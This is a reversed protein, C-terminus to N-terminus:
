EEGEAISWERRRALLDYDGYEDVFQPRPQSLYPTDPDDFAAIWQKLGDGVKRMIDGAEDGAAGTENDKESEKRLVTRLYCFEAVKRPGLAAFGGGAVILATLPLQVRFLQMQKDSPISRSKYDFIAADGGHTLDIRDAYASIKFPQHGDELTLEGKGEIVAPAGLLLRRAHFDAFWSLTDAVAPAFFAAEAPGYGYGPAFQAFIEDLAGGERAYTEFVKHFLSGLHRPGFPENLPDLKKLDLIYQAYIAYPDRLWKEIRTVFLGRPRLAFTPKPKPAAVPKAGDEPADLAKAWAALTGTEDLAGLAGAGELINRLRVIWRSPKAPAGGTRAARTLIVRPGAALQAFDHAALGVRREPSPLGLKQRMPRSLFPDAEAEGPWVGENLGGLIVLDASQLRAELPGLISLRSHAPARRRVAASAIMQTFAAAYDTVAIAGVSGASAKLDALLLAGAEGDEGRWLREAGAEDAAAALLEAAALHADLRASFPAEPTRPFLRAAADLAAAVPAAEGARRHSAIKAALGAAGVGDAPPALGRAAENFAAVARRRGRMDLGLGALPHQVLALAAAPDNPAALWAAALRLYTGCPSNAFPIGASDDVAVQWRRMKAAVRRSLNRDPTVLMATTGPTDLTERLKLAIASAESEEDAAEILSLGATSRKLGPDAASARAVLERWDDTAEAPRLALSVLARRPARDGGPFARVDNPQLGLRDLLAKLGAQPHPDDIAKWAKEDGALAFDLGPLVVAGKPLRAVVGMLRAVAPASGTTGAVIVPTQPNLRAFRKASLDILAARREAPDTLQNARLFDPWIRTAIKLFDLSRAWHAAHGGVDIDALAAFDIEEAYFSDLLASLEKAAALAAPWNEQGNFSAREAVAVFRALILRRELTSIAPPLDLAEADEPAAELAFEDEDVDGLPRIRPLLSARGGPAAAVFADVLGRAARRTPVFIEVDALALPDDGAAAAVARALDALFPRGAEISFLRPGAGAFIDATDPRASM